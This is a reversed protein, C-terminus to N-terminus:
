PFNSLNSLTPGRHAVVLELDGLLLSINTSCRGKEALLEVFVQETFVRFKRNKEGGDLGLGRGHSTNQGENDGLKVVEGSNTLNKDRKSLSVRSNNTDFHRM